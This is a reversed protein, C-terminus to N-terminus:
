KKSKVARMDPFRLFSYHPNFACHESLYCNCHHKEEPSAQWIFIGLSILVVSSASGKIMTLTEYVYPPFQIRFRSVTGGALIAIIFPNKTINV